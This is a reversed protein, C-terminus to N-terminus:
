GLRRALEWGQGPKREPRVPLAALCVDYCPMVAPSVCSSVPASCCKLEPARVARQLIARRWVAACSLRTHESLVPPLAGAQRCPASRERAGRPRAGRSRPLDPPLADPALGFDALARNNRSINAAREAEMENEPESAPEAAEGPDAGADAAEALAERARAEQASVSYISASLLAVQTDQQAKSQTASLLALWPPV